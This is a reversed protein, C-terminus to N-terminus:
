MPPSATEAPRRGRTLHTPPEPVEGNPQVAAIATKPAAATTSNKMVKRDVFSRTWGETEWCVVMQRSMASKSVLTGQSRRTKEVNAM